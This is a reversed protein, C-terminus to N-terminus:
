KKLMHKMLAMTEIQLQQMLVPDGLIEAQRVREKLNKAKDRIERMKSTRVGLLKNLLLSFLVLGLTIFMLEFIVDTTLPKLVM